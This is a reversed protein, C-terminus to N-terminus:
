FLFRTITIQRGNPFTLVGNSADTFVVSVSGVNGIFQNKKFAGGFTQGNAYQEWQGNFTAPSGMAGYTIYWIPSGATDYMYGAIFVVNGQVELSYGRGSEDSNWWWGNQPVGTGGNAYVYRVIPTTTGNPWTITGATPRTFEVRINGLSGSPVARGTTTNLALGGRYTDMSATYVGNSIQGASIFWLPSGIPDYAYGAMVITSGRQELFFGRGSENENWWWGTQPTVNGVPALYPAIFPYAVDLRSFEDTGAMNSCAADGGYLGGRLEYYSGNYTLLGAGSSGAETSGNSYRVTIFSGQGDFTGYGLISGQSFKELDGNPYHLVAMPTGVTIPNANWASFYVGSPPQANLRMFSVDTAADHYLLTAGGGTIVYNAPVALSGCSSAAFFWYTNLTSAKAQSDICHDASYFYPISSSNTTNLLTGSCLHVFGADTFVVQAVAKAANLLATSPNSVCAVDIECPDSDGIDGTRKARYTLLDRGAVELHSIQPIELRATSVDVGSPVFVEVVGTDGELIPSWHITASSLAAGTTPGFVTQGSSGVYRFQIMEAQAPVSAWRLGIRVAAASPSTVSVKAARGGEVSVWDLSRLPLSRERAALPRQYGIPLPRAKDQVRASKVAKALENRETDSPARLHISRSAAAPALLKAAPQEKAAQYLAPPASREDAALAAGSLLLLLVMWRAVM